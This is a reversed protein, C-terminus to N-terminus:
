DEPFNRTEDIIYEPRAKIEDFLVGVYQGLLGVTLLQIGGFFLIAIMLSTWGGEANSFGYFKGLVFWITLVLAVLIAVFGLGAALKLPRKSFYFLATSAFRIMKRFSYKSHDGLRAAREYYLPVQRFGMWSILGRIYKTQEKFENFQNMIKRDILRFDGTDLPFQVESMSNLFRYFWRSTLIKLRSEGPRCTRVCYVVNAAERERLAMMEPILEPPDQMDADLIVALDADCHNVGATIAPQHGFNRSLHIVKAHPDDQALRDLVERTGDTSGDNVFIIESPNPLSALVGQIRKHSVEIVHAENYCPVIVALKSLTKEM